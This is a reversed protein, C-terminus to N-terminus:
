YIQQLLFGRGVLLTKSKLQRQTELINIQIFGVPSIVQPIHKHILTFYHKHSHISAAQVQTTISRTTLYVKIKWSF